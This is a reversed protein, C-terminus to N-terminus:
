PCVEIPLTHKRELTLFGAGSDPQFNVTVTLEVRDVPRDAAVKASWLEKEPDFSVGSDNSSYVNPTPVTMSMCTNQPVTTRDECMGAGFVGDYLRVPPVLSFRISTPRDIPNGLGTIAIRAPAGSSCDAVLTQGRRYIPNRAALDWLNGLMVDLAQVRDMDRRASLRLDTADLPLLEVKTVRRGTLEVVSVHQVGGAQPTGAKVDGGTAGVTLYRIGDLTGGDQQYHFHGSLVLTVPYRRLLEHVRQWNSWHYWHPQHLLVVIGEARANAALDSRLWALQDDRVQALFVDGWRPDSHLAQQSDLVVVHYGGVDFSYWLNGGYRPIRPGYLEKFLTERSRDPSNQRYTPPNVDHDGATLYWAVPLADLRAVADAFRRRVENVSQASEVLDGVHLVLDLPARRHYQGLREVGQSLVRYAADLDAAGTQDGIVGIRLVKAAARRGDAEPRPVSSSSTCASTCLVVALVLPTLARSM